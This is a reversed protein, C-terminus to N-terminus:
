FKKYLEFIRAKRKANKMVRERWETSTAVKFEPSSLFNNESFEHVAVYKYVPKDTMLGKQSSDVLKYRRGQKWGPIKSLLDMHEEDYWKNLDDEEEPTTMDIAVVLVFKCPLSNAATDPHTFTSMHVYTRRSLGEIKELIAKERDSVRARSATYAESNVVELTEIDSLMLWTPTQSDVAKYLCASKVGPVALKLPAHEDYWDNLEADTVDTGSELYVFVLGEHSKTIALGQPTKQSM